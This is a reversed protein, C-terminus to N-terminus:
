NDSQGNIFYQHVIGHSNLDNKFGKVNSKPGHFFVGKDSLHVQLKHKTILPTIKTEHKEADYEDIHISHEDNETLYNIFSKM